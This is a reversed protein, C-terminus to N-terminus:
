DGDDVRMVDTLAQLRYGDKIEVAQIGNLAYHGKGCRFWITAKPFKLKVPEPYAFCFDFM